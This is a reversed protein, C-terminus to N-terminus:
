AVFTYLISDGTMTVQGACTKNRSRLTIVCDIIIKIGTIVARIGTAVRIIVGGICGRTVWVIGIFRICRAATVANGILGGLLAIIAIGGINICTIRGALKGNTAIINAM